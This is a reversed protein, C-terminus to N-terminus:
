APKQWLLQHELNASSRERIGGTFVTRAGRKTKGTGVVPTVETEADVRIM